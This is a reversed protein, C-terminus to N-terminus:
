ADTTAADAGGGAAGGAPWGADAPAKRQMEMAEEWQSALQNCDEVRAFGVRANVDDHVTLVGRRIRSGM